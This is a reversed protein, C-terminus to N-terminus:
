SLDPWGCVQQAYNLASTAQRDREADDPQVGGGGGAPPRMADIQRAM